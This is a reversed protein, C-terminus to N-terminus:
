RDVCTLSYFIVCPIIRPRLHIERLLDVYELMRRLELMEKKDDEMIILESMPRWGMICGRLVKFQEGQLPKTFYDALIIYTYLHPPAHM